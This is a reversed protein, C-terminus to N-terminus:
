NILVTWYQIAVYKLQDIVSAPPLSFIKLEGRQRGAILLRKPTACRIDAGRSDPRILDCRKEQRRFTIKGPNTYEVETRTRGSDLGVRQDLSEVSKVLRKKTEM